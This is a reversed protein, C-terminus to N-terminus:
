KEPIETVTITVALAECPGVNRTPVGNAGYALEWPLYFTATEGEHMLQLAETIGKLPAGQVYMNRPEAGTTNITDGNLKTITYKALVRSDNKVAKDNGPTVTKYAIGTDTRKVDTLASFFTEADKRNQAAEPSNMKAEEAKKARIEQVKQNLLGAEQRLQMMDVTVSDAMVTNQIAQVLKQRSVGDVATAMGMYNQFVEMGMQLGIFYSLNATDCKMVERIGRMVEAKDFKKPADPNNLFSAFHAGMAEGNITALSDLFATNEASEGSAKKDSCSAMGMLMAVAACAIISKKM